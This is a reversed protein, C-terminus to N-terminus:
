HIRGDRRAGHRHGWAGFGFGRQVIPQALAQRSGGCNRDAHGILSGRKRRWFRDRKRLLIQPQLRNIKQIEQVEVEILRHALDIIADDLEDAETGVGM